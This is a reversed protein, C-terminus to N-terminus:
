WARACVRVRVRVCARVRVRVRVGVCLSVCLCGCGWVGVCRFTGRSRPALRSRYWVARRCWKWRVRLM